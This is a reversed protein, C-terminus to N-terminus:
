EDDDDDDGDDDDDDDDDENDDDDSGDEIREEEDESSSLNFEEVIDEEDGVEKLDMRHKKKLEQESPQTEEEDDSEELDSFEDDEESSEDPIEEKKKRKRGEREWNAIFPEDDSDSDSEVFLGKFEKKKKDEDKQQQREIYPIDDTLRDKGAEEHIIEKERLKKYTKYLQSIPTGQQKSQIEWAQVEKEHSLHISTADRRKNIVNCNEQIKDLLQKMQRCYNSVKCMKLFSKVELILPLALEPFGICHSHINLHELLLDYLQDILGDKFGREHLQSKSLKLIVAFNLPKFSVTSHKKNWETQEFVELLFPLIPIFTGTAESLLNLARLCHFRLPYFRPAPILKTVGITIQVLPYVLPQLTDNPHLTSLMRCWLYICHIYQWNYVAQYADKKKTTIANRLHIALQRIYVFAHQYTVHTDIAFMETLSRQMFNIMPLVNPSTFKCNRVYGMYMQKLCVELLLDQLNFAIRYISLFALVRVTEEGSGWLTVLKKVLYKALKPFCAYYPVLVHIHRLIVSVINPEALQTLLQIVDTLYSKISNQVRFWKKSSSPLVFKKQKNDKLGLVALLTIPVERVCLSVIANFAQSGEVKYKGSDQSEQRGTQQVASKFAKMAELLTHLSHNEELTEKWTAVMKLTVISTHKTKGKTTEMADNDGDEGEFESDDDDDGADKLKDPIEHIPGEEDESEDDYDSGSLDFDLLDKDEQKLFAYFEPDHEKLREMQKKHKKGATLKEEDDDDEVDEMAVDDEEETDEEDKKVVEMKKKKKKKATVKEAVNEKEIASTKKAKTKKVKQQKITTDVGVDKKVKTKKMKKTEIVTSDDSSDIDSEMGHKMFDDVSLDKIKRKQMSSTAM